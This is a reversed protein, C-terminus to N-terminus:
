LNILLFLVFRIEIVEDDADVIESDDLDRTSAKENMLTEINHAREVHPPCEADGTPKTTRM